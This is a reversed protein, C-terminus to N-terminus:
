GGGERGHKLPNTKPRVIQHRKPSKQFLKHNEKQCIWASTFCIPDQYIKLMPWDQWQRGQGSSDAVVCKRPLGSATGASVCGFTSSGFAGFSSFASSAFSSFSVSVLLQFYSNKSTQFIIICELKYNLWLALTINSFLLHIANKPYQTAVTHYTLPVSQFQLISYPKLPFHYPLGCFVLGLCSPFM